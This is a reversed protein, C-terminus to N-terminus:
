TDMLKGQANNGEPALLVFIHQLKQCFCENRLRDETVKMAEEETALGEVLPPVKAKFNWYRRKEMFDNLLQKRRIGRSRKGETKREIVHKM